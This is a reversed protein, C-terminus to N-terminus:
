YVVESSSEKSKKSSNGSNAPASKKNGMDCTGSFTAGPEISLKGTEINGLIKATNKLSLINSVKVNGDITGEIDANECVVDGKIHGSPGVVLRGEINITGELNGDIRFNSKAKIDGVITTEEVLKNLKDPSNLEGKGSTNTKKNLM